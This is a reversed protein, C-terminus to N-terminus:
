QLELSCLDCVMGVFVFMVAATMCVLAFLVVAAMVTSLLDCAVGFSAFKVATAMCGCALMGVRAMVTSVLWILACMVAAAAALTTM